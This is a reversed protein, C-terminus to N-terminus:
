GVPGLTERGATAEACWLPAASAQPAVEFWLLGGPPALLAGGPIREGVLEAGFDRKRVNFDFSEDGLKPKM